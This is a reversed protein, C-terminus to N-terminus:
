RSNESNTVKKDQRSKTREDKKAKNDKNDKKEKAEKELREKEEKAKKAQEAKRAEEAIQEARVAEEMRAAERMSARSQSEGAIRAMKARLNQTDLAWYSVGCIYTPEGDAFIKEMGNYSAIVVTPLLKIMELMPMDTEIASACAYIIRPLRFLTLPSAVADMAAALFKQQRKARGIDGEEDRYRVYQVAKNGDLTQKGPKLDIVLGGNDDWPDEYYMRKEVDIEVGGLADIMKVVGQSEIEVLYDMKVDLLNEVTRRTLKGEGYAYAHNIKDWGHGPIMVRSDRPISLMTAVNDERNLSMVFITDSRGVDGERMDVGLVLINIPKAPESSASFRCGALVSVVLLIMLLLFLKSNKQRKERKMDEEMILGGRMALHQKYM